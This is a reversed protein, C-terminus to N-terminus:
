RIKMYKGLKEKLWFKFARVNLKEWKDPVLIYFFPEFNKVYICCTKGKENLVM